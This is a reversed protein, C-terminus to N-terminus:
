SVIMRRASELDAAEDIDIADAVEIAGLRVGNELLRQLFQRLAGLGLRRAEAAFQFISTPLWYLGATVMSSERQGLSAILGSKTVETFLPKRDSRWRTVALVGDFQGSSTGTQADALFRRFEAEPVIADVTAALFHGARLSEGLVLLTEMSNATDRVIIKLYEPLTIDRALSATENNIVALVETAGADIMANAQRILLPKGGVEVLPKPVAVGSSARLRDGRGAAIIAGQFESGM